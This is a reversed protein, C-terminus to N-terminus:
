LKKMIKAISRVQERENEGENIITLEIVLDIPKSHKLQLKLDENDKNL